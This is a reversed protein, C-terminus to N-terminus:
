RLYNQGNRPFTEQYVFPWQCQQWDVSRGKLMFCSSSVLPKMMSACRVEKSYLVPEIGFFPSMPFGPKPKSHDSAPRPTIAIGGTESASHLGFSTCSQVPLFKIPVDMCVVHVAFKDAKQNIQLCPIFFETVYATYILM